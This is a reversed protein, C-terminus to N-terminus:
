LEVAINFADTNARAIDGVSNSDGVIYTEPIVDSLEEIAAANRALGFATIVTDAELLRAKGDKGAIEVGESIIKSVRNEYCTEIGSEALLKMLTFRMLEFANLCLEAQPLMDVLTVQKGDRALELACETGSLGGGCIVVRQGIPAKKLDADSINVVQPLDIGEISPRIHEAGIAIIVTDPKEAEIIARTARSNIMVRAGSNLTADIDWQLYRRFGDKCTMASAEYLKGGLKDTQEYLVVEHGRTVAIQAAMMGAPGGGVVMVKKKQGAKPIFRYKVERGARPNVACRTPSGVLPGNLCNLCRLCPRIEAAKGRQAKTVLEQDAILSKAMAAIDAKGSAIIQEAEEITTIGGVVAVPIDLHKKIEAAYEVNLLHPMYYGPITYIIYQTDILLGGSINVLDIYHQAKKLFATVEQVTPCGEMREYGSIRYEIQLKDGISDRVASLLELPFRMRNEHSGGYRDGRRNFVPSLFSSLLNGHAGHIMVMDFGAEKCRRVAEIFHGVVEQMEKHSIEVVNRRKDLDPIVSPAFAPKGNLLGPHAIRGAHTLEVSLKAGYRHAEDALLKLTPVDYDNVVSMSGYFDRARDYDVPTAGITVIGAGSRAQAGVFEILDVNIEGSLAHAHASVVPSFQIRNKVTMNGVKLPTFVHPYNKLKSM